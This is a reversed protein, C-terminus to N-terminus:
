EALKSNNIDFYALIKRLDTNELQLIQHIWHAMEITPNNRLKCFVSASEAAKFIVPNLKGFLATRQITAM